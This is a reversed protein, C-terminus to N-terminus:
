EISTILGEQSGEACRGHANPLGTVNSLSAKMPRKWFLSAGDTPCYLNWWTGGLDALLTHKETATTPLHIKFRRNDNKNATYPNETYKFCIRILIHYPRIVRLDDVIRIVYPFDTDHPLDPTANVITTNATTPCKESRCCLTYVFTRAITDRECASRPTM